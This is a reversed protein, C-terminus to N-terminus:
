KGPQDVVLSGKGRRDGKANMHKEWGIGGTPTVELRLDGVYGPELQVYVPQAKKDGGAMVFEVNINTSTAVEITQQYSGGAKLEPITMAGGTYSVKMDHISKGSGNVVLVQIGSAVCGTMLLACALAAIFPITRKVVNM